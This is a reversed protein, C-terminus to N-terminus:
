PRHVSDEFIALNEKAEAYQYSTLEIQNGDPDCFYVSMSVQHDSVTYPISQAVLIRLLQCFCTADLSFAVTNGPPQHTRLFLSIVAANNKLVLPGGQTFWFLLSEDRSFGLVRKYWHEAKKLDHVYIHVHDIKLLNVKM